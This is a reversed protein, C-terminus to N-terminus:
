YQTVTYQVFANYAGSATTFPPQVTYNDTRTWGSGVPGSTAGLSTLLGLEAFQGTTSKSLNFTKNSDVTVTVSKGGVLTGPDIAGFDVTNTTDPSVITLKILPNVTATVTVSGSASSPSGTGNITQSGATAYVVSGLFLAVALVALLATKKM